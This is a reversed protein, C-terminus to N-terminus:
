LYNHAPLVQPLLILLKVVYKSAGVLSRVEMFRIRADDRVEEEEHTSERRQVTVSSPTPFDRDETDYKSKGEKAKKKQLILKTSLPQWGDLAFSYMNETDLLISM